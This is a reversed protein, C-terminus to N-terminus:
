PMSLYFLKEVKYRTIRCLFSDAIIRFDNIIGFIQLTFLSASRRIFANSVEFMSIRVTLLRSNENM